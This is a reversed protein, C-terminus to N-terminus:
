KKCFKTPEARNAPTQVECNLHHMFAFNVARAVHRLVSRDNSRLRGSRVHEHEVVRLVWAFWRRVANRTRLQAEFAVGFLAIAERPVRVSDAVQEGSGVVM